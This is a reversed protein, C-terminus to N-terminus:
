YSGIIVFTIAYCMVSAFIAAVVDDLMVGMGGKIKKDIYDIPWPKFIDFFRFTVFPLIVLFFLNLLDDSFSAKLYSNHAFVVTFFSLTVTLIQGVIEDVVIEKPDDINNQKIYINSLKVGVIFIFLNTLLIVALIALIEQIIHEFGPIIIRLEFFSCLFFLLYLIPFAVLSGVTGPAYRSYGTYFGTLIAIRIKDKM